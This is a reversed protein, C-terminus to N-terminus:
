KRRRYVAFALAISGFIAAWEAPEPVAVLNIYSGGNGDSIIQIQSSDVITDDITITNIYQNVLDDTLGIHVSNNVWNYGKEVVLNLLSGDQMQVSNIDLAFGNVYIDIVSSENESSLVEIKQNAYMKIVNDTGNFHITQAMADNYKVLANEARLILTGSGQLEMQNTKFGGTVGLDITGGSSVRTFGFNNTVGGTQQYLSGTGTVTFYADGRESGESTIKYTSSGQQLTGATHTFVSGATLNFADQYTAACIVGLTGGKLYTTSGGQFYLNMFNMERVSLSVAVGPNAIITPKTYQEAQIRGNGSISLTTDQVDDNNGGTGFLYQNSGFNMSGNVVISPSKVYQVEYYKKLLLHSVGSVSINENITWISNESVVTNPHGGAGYFRVVGVDSLNSTTTEDKTISKDAYASVGLSLLSFTLLLKKM